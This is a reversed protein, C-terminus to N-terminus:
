KQRQVAIQCIERSNESPVFGRVLPERYSMFSKADAFRRFDGIECLVSLAIIYDIGKFARLKSV